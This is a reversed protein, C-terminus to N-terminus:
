SRKLEKNIQVKKEYSIVEYNGFCLNICSDILNDIELTLDKLKLSDLLKTKLNM